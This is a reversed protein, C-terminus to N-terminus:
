SVRAAGGTDRGIIGDGHDNGFRQRRIAVADAMRQDLTRCVALWHRYAARDGAFFAAEANRSALDAAGLGHAAFHHLASRLLTNRAAMADCDNAPLGPQMACLVKAVAACEGTGAAAFRITM